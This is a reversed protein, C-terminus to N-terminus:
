AGVLVTHFNWKSGMRGLVQYQWNKKIKSIRTPPKYYNTWKFYVLQGSPNPRQSCGKKRSSNPDSSCRCQSSCLPLWLGWKCQKSSNDTAAPSELWLLRPSVAQRWSLRKKNMLSGSLEGYLQLSLRSFCTMVEHSYLALRMLLLKFLFFLKFLCGVFTHFSAQPCSQKNKCYGYSQRSGM